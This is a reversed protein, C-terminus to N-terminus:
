VWNSDVFFLIIYSFGLWVLGNKMQQLNGFEYINNIVHTQTKIPM